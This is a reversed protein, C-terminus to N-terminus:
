QKIWPKPKKKKVKGGTKSTVPVKGQAELEEKEKIHKRIVKQEWVGAFVSTMIYLNLGSPAKYLFILMMAPMMWMMMKQQQAVQPNVGERSQHPMMKQQLFMAVGLLVPLLNFSSLEAGILPITIAPFSFLADPASLDTIWVPLFAAGRLEVNAYIASYLAIWIPMQLFIPLMGSVPSVGMERYLEMTRKQLEQKNDGYKKKLEEMKPGLKQMKMMSVQSKKTIPHLALRVLGVFIIIVIGYNGLPGMLSYMTKMLWMVGFSLPSIIAQPCCCTRFSITQFYALERYLANDTFVDKDKPGIYLQYSLVDSAGESGAAALEGSVSNMDFSLYEGGAEAADGKELYFQARGAEAGPVYNQGEVPVPRLIAAFYKNTTAGWLFNTEEPATLSLKDKEGKEIAKEIDKKEKYISEVKGTPSVYAGFVKRMEMRVAERPMGTPGQVRLMARYPTGSLNELAVDCEMHYLGPMVTYTKVVKLLPTEVTKGGGQADVVGTGVIAEFSVSQSGDEATVVEGAQWNLRDLPFSRDGWDIVLGNSFTRKTGRGTEVPELLRLPQPDDANRDDFGSMTASAIAAGKSTLELKYEYGSQPDLSGLERTVTGRNIAVLEPLREEAQLVTQEEASDIEGAVDTGDSADTDGAAEEAALRIVGGAQEGEVFLGSQYVEFGCYGAFALIFAAAFIKLKM